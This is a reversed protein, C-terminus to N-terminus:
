PPDQSHPQVCACVCVRMCARVCMGHACVCVCGGVYGGVCVCVGTLTARDVGCWPRRALADWCLPHSSFDERISPLSLCQRYYVVWWGISQKWLLLLSPCQGSTFKTRDVELAVLSNIFPCFPSDLSWTMQLHLYLCAMMLNCVVFDVPKM